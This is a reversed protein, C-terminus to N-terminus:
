HTRASKETANCGSAAKIHGVAARIVEADNTAFSVDIHRVNPHMIVQGAEIGHGECIKVIGTVVLDKETSVAKPNFTFRHVGGRMIKHGTISALGPISKVPKEKRLSFEVPKGTFKDLRQGSILATYDEDSHAKVSAGEDTPGVEYRARRQLSRAIPKTPAKGANGAGKLTTKSSEQVENRLAPLFFEMAISVQDADKAKQLRGQGKDKSLKKLEEPLQAPDTITGNQVLAVLAEALRNLVPVIISAQYPGNHREPQLEDVERM